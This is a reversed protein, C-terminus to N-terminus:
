FIVTEGTRVREGVTDGDRELEFAEVLGDAELATGEINSAM